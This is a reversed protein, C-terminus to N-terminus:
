PLHPIMREKDPQAVTLTWTLSVSQPNFCIKDDCAQYDLQGSLTLADINSLTEAAEPSAEVVVEQVLTFPCLYAPLTSLRRCRSSLPRMWRSRSRLTGLKLM